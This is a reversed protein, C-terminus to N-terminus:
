LKKTESLLSVYFFNNSFYVICTHACRGPSFFNYTHIAYYKKLFRKDTTNLECIKKVKEIICKIQLPRNQYNKICHTFMGGSMTGDYSIQM